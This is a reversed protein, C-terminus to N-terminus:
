LPAWLDLSERKIRNFYVFAELCPDLEVWIRNIGIRFIHPMTGNERRNVYVLFVGSTTNAVQKHIAPVAQFSRLTNIRCTDKCSHILAVTAIGQHM